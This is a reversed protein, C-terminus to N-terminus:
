VSEKAATAAVLSVCMAVVAALCSLAAGVGVARTTHLAVAAAVASALAALAVIGAGVFAARGRGAVGVLWLVAGAVPVVFLLVGVKRVPTGSDGGVNVATGAIRFAARDYPPRGAWPVLSALILLAGAGALVGRGWKDVAAM